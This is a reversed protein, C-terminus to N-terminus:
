TGMSVELKRGLARSVKAMTKITPNAGARELRQVAQYTMGLRNALETQTIKADERAWRLVLPAMVEADPGVMHVHEGQATFPRPIVHGQDLMTELVGTLAALGQVWFGGTEAPTFRMPYAIKM